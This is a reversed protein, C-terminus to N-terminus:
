LGINDPNVSEISHSLPIKFDDIIIDYDFKFDYKNSMRQILDIIRFTEPRKKVANFVYFWNKRFEDIDRNDFIEQVDYRKNGTYKVKILRKEYILIEDFKDELLIKFYNM